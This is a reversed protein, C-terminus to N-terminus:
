FLGGQKGHASILHRPYPFLLRTKQFIKFPAPRGENWSARAPM